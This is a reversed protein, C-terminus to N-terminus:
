SSLFLFFTMDILNKIYIHIYMKKKFFFEGSAL